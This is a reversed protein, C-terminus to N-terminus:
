VDVITVRSLLFEVTKDRRVLTRMRSLGGEKELRARVATASRGTREALRAIEAELEEDSIAIGERRAVDDLMLLSKVAERASERQRERFEQWNMGAHLPDIKQEMLQRALEETRRDVERDVLAEPVDFEVRSALQRLLDNRIEREQGREANHRLDERLRDRLEDLSAFDGVDKAFEDDVDPRVKTKLGHVKIAYEVDTGALEEIIYDAPFTLVFTKEDGPSLGTLQDDFGPPNAADGVEITVNEHREPEAPAQAESSALGEAGSSARGRLIRRTLDVSLLDGRQSARGEVPERRAHRDRLREITSTVAEDAVEIPSRRLTISPYEVERIPPVTEFDARFKLPQGEEVSVDRVDPTDIPELARERLAEDLARPILGHMVDHLIQDKYRQRVIRAPAKGPRFGPIRAAKGYDRAVRDIETEVVDPPIEFVLQKHTSSVDIFETKMFSDAVSASYEDPSVV